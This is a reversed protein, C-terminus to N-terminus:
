RFSELNLDSLNTPKMMFPNASDQTGELKNLKSINDKMNKRLTDIEKEIKNQDQNIIKKAKDTSIKIFMDGSCM